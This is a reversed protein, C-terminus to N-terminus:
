ADDGRPTPQEGSWAAHLLTSLSNRTVPVPNSDPIADLALEVAHDIDQERLGHDRLAAPADLRRRLDELATTAARAPDSANVGDAGGLSQALRAALGPVGAANHALVHPLVVAHTQAHPLNFAGGLIHCIKHHMGSGASGFAIAALYSGYLM